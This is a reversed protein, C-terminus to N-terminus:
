RVETRGRARAILILVVLTAGILVLTNAAALFINGRDSLAFITVPLTRWSAPYVMVTAGLEGMCLAFALGTAAAISPLLLPLRVTLLVRLGRAGLSAAVLCMLPEATRAAAAVTNYAFTLVLLTQALVVIVVTGNLVLPQRSFATLLGLGIVVSPVAAPLHFLADTIKRIGAPAAHAALAAWTGLVVASVSALLATQLSVVLSALNDAALADQLHETTPGTPWIGNWSGAFAALITVLLPAGILVIVLVALVVWVAIRAAKSHLLM